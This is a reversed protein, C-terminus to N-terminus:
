ILRTRERVPRAPLLLVLLMWVGLILHAAIDLYQSGDGGLRHGIMSGAQRAAANRINTLMTGAYWEVGTFGLYALAINRAGAALRGRSFMILMIAAVAVELIMLVNGAIEMAHSGRVQFLWSVAVDIFMLAAFAQAVPARRGAPIRATAGAGSSASTNMLEATEEPPGIRRSEVGDAWDETLEGQVEAIRARIQEICKRATWNRYLSPLDDSSVATYIRCVCSRSASVYVWTAVLAAALSWLVWVAWNGIFPASSLALAALWVTAILMSRTSLHFRPAEALAISQIDSLHYRKYEERFRSSRVHLLHDPGLWLSSGNILGRRRGPLRKNRIREPSSM